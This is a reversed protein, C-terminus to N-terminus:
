RELREQQRDAILAQIMTKVTIEESTSRCAKMKYAFSTSSDAALLQLEERRKQRYLIADLDDLADNIDNQLRDYTETTDPFCVIDNWSYEKKHRTLKGHRIAEWEIFQPEHVAYLLWNTLDSKKSIASCPLSGDSNRIALQQIIDLPVAGKFQIFCHYHIKPLDVTKSGRSLIVRAQKKEGDHRIYYAYSIIAEANKLTEQLNIDNEGYWICSLPKITQTKKM